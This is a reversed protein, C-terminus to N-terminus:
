VATQIMMSAQTRCFLSCPYVYSPSMYDRDRSQELITYYLIIDTITPIDGAVTNWATELSLSGM